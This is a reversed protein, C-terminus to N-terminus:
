DYEVVRWARVPALRQRSSGAAPSAAFVIVTNQELGLRRLQDVLAGVVNDIGTVTQCTRIQMERMTEPTKVYSYSPIFEGSYVQRPIKPTAIDKAAVYTKPLRMEGARDRYGTRYLEPDGPLQRM